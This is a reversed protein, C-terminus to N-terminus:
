LFVVNVPSLLQSSPDTPRNPLPVSQSKGQGTSSDTLIKSFTIIPYIIFLLHRKGVHATCSPNQRKQPIQSSFKERGQGPINWCGVNHFLSFLSEEQVGQGQSRSGWCQGKGAKGTTKGAKGTLGFCVSGSAKCGLGAGWPNRVGPHNRPLFVSKWCPRERWPIPIQAPFGSHQQEQTSGKDKGDNRGTQTRRM